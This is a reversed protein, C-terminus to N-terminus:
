SQRMEGFQKPVSKLVPGAGHRDCTHNQMARAAQTRRNGSNKDFAAVHEVHPCDRCLLV